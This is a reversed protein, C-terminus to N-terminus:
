NKSTLVSSRNLPQEGYIGTTRCTRHTFCQRDKSQVMKKLINTCHVAKFTSITVEQPVIKRLQLCSKKWPSIKPSMNTTM